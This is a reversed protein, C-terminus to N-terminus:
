QKEDKPSRGFDRCLQNKVKDLKKRQAKSLHQGADNIYFNLMSM